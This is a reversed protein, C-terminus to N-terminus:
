TQRLGTRGPTRDGVNRGRALSSKTGSVRMNFVPIDTGDRPFSSVCYHAGTRRETVAAPGAGARGM